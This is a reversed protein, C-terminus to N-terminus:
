EKLFTSCDSEGACIGKGPCNSCDSSAVVKSGTVAAMLALLGFLLYRILKRIFDIRDM